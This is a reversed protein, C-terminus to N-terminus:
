RDPWIVIIDSGTLTITRSVKTELEFGDIRIYIEQIDSGPTPPLKAQKKWNNLSTQDTAAIFALVGPELYGPSPNGVIDYYLGETIFQNITQFSSEDEFREFIEAGDYLTGLKKGFQDWLTVKLKRAYLTVLLYRSPDVASIRPITVSNLGTNEIIKVGKTDHPTAISTPVPVVVNHTYVKGGTYYSALTFIDGEPKTKDTKITGTIDFKIKNGVRQINSTKIGSSGNFEVLSVNAAEQAPTVVAQLHQTRDHGNSSIGVRLPTMIPQGDSTQFQITPTAICGSAIGRTFRRSSGMRGFVMDGNPVGQNEDFTYDCIYCAEANSSVSLNSQLLSIPSSPNCVPGASADTEPEPAVPPFGHWAGVRIGSGSISSITKGDDSVKGTGSQVYRGADHDFSMLLVESNPPQQDLNPFTIELPPDFITGSPQVSVYLNTVRGDELPMPITSVPIKTVSLRKDTIDPPFMVHTGARAVIQIPPEGGVVPLQYVTDETVINNSDLPLEIGENVKPLFIPRGVRNTIGPLVDLDYSINPWRGPFPVQDRGIVELLQHPGASLNELFFRGDSGTRTQQGGIRILVNPLARWNQDYVNGILKTTGGPVPFLAETMFVAPTLANGPFDARVLQPGPKSGCTYRAIAYGQSNTTTTTITTGDSFKGGGFFVQFTVPVGSVPHGLIDTVFAVLPRPLETEILGRQAAGTATNIQAPQGSPPPLQSPSSEIVLQTPSSKNGESDTATVMLHNTGESLDVNIFFLGTSAARTTLPTAGGSVEIIAGPETQGEISQYTLRTSSPIPFIHPSPPSTRDKGRLQLEQTSTNGVLDTAFIQIFNIGEQVPVGPISFSSTLSGPTPAVEFVSDNITIWVTTADSIQGHITTTAESIITGEPPNLNSITPPQTDIEVTRIVEKRNGTLDVATVRIINTGETVTVDGSFWGEENIPVPIENVSVAVGVGLARGLVVFPSLNSILGDMPNEVILSFPIAPQRQVAISIETQNAAEDISRVLLTNPGETLPVVALFENGTVTAAIDNVTVSITTADTVTGTVTIQAETTTAGDEPSTITLVPATTDLVVSRSATSTNGFADTASVTIINSGETLTVSATFQTGSLTAPQSNVTVTVASVDTVTGSVTVPSANTILGEAPETLTIVPPTTDQPVQLTVTRTTEIQNGAADQARIVFTNQGEVLSVVASFENSNRTAAVNNVTVTTATADTVTGTITLQTETTVAGDPPSTITLVPATTDLTVNRTATGVNGFADTALVTITNSGEALTVSTSLQTGSLTVPQGNVTVTVASTDTVTGSVTVPSNKTILGEAPEALTIVPATTDQPAQALITVVGGGNVTLRDCIVNGTLRSNVTVSGAPANVKGFMQSGGNLTIGGNSVNLTLWQPNAANGISGNINTGNRLTLTVPGVIQLQTGGNLTLGQLNYIAPETANAVGFILVSSGNVTFNGYTGPPVSRTGANGNLTLNRLTAFDGIQDAPSNLSVDRTGTPTPPAAVPTLAVPNTRNVLNGLTANGNLTVQYNTPVASGSGEIVGGFNPNGNRRVTPTGPVYLKETITAGGNLTVNEPTLQQINGEFRGNISPARRSLAQGGTPEQKM